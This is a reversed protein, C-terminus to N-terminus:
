VLSLNHSHGLCCRYPQLLPTSSTPIHHYSRKPGTKRSKPHKMNLPFSPQKHTPHITSKSYFPEPQTSPKPRCNTRRTPLGPYVSPKTHRYTLDYIQQSFIILIISTAFPPFGKQLHQTRHERRLSLVALNTCIVVWSSQTLYLPRLYWTYGVAEATRLICYYNMDNECVEAMVRRGDGIRGQPFRGSVQLLGRQSLLYCRLSWHVSHKYETYITGRLGYRWPTSIM